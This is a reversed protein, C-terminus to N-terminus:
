RALVRGPMGGRPRLTVAPAVEARHGDPIVVQWRRSLTALVLVGELWAFPEGICVRQGLGFPFWAGRPQGPAWEDFQGAGDLWRDPHFEAAAPWFRPDRHLVWQSAVALSGAPLTWGDVVLDATLRRGLSWAPPYLRLSEAIVAQTWSLAPAHSSTAPRGALVSDVEEHLRSAAEHDRGLLYWAWTLANATTEHGALVLTMVEDRLQRDDMGTEILASLVDATPGNASGARHDRVLRGVLADLQDIALLSQRNGPLPLRDLLESGPLVRRQFQGVMQGLAARVDGADARLDSGFLTRGVITLTLTAMDAAVDLERGDRWHEAAHETAALVMQDGYQEVRAAHFAPQVLRRQRRWLEGESTLLGDGLLQRSRQLARGKMTHRGQTVLVERVTEPHNLLYLHERGLRLHAIRPYVRASDTFLDSPLTRGTVLEVVAAPGSPGPPRARRARRAPRLQNV